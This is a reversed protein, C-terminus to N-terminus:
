FIKITVARSAFMKVPNSNSENQENWPLNRVFCLHKKKRKVVTFLCFFMSSPKKNTKIKNKRYQYNKFYPVKTKM